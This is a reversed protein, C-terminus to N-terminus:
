KEGTRDSGRGRAVTSSLGIESPNKWICDDCDCYPACTASKAKPKPDREPTCYEMLDNWLQSQISPTYGEKTPTSTVVSASTEMGLGGARSAKVPTLQSRATRYLVSGSTAM